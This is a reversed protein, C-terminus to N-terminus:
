KRARGMWECKSNELEDWRHTVKVSKMKLGMGGKCRRHSVRVVGEGGGFGGGFGLLDPHNPPTGGGAWVWFKRKAVRIREMSM